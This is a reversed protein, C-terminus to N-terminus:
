VNSISTVSLLCCTTASVCVGLLLFPLKAVKLKTQAYYSSQTHVARRVDSQWQTFSM